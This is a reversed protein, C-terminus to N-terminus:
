NKKAIKATVIKAAVRLQLFAPHGLRKNRCVLWHLRTGREQLTQLPPCSAASGCSIKISAHFALPAIALRSSDPAVEPVRASRVGNEPARRRGFALGAFFTPAREVNWSRRASDCMVTIGNMAGM